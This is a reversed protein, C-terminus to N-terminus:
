IMKWEVCSMHTVYRDFKGGGGGGYTEREVSFDKLLSDCHLTVAASRYVFGSACCNIFHIPSHRPTSSAARSINSNQRSVAWSIMIVIGHICTYTNNSPPTRPDHVRTGAAEGRVFTSHNQVSVARNESRDGEPFSPRARENKLARWGVRDLNISRTM